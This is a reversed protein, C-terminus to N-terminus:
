SAGHVVVVHDDDAGAGAAARERMPKRWGALLDQQELAAAIERALGLVPIGLLHEAALSVDGGLAPIVLVADREARVALVDDAAVGLDVPSGEKAKALAVELLGLV